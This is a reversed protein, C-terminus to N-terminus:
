SFKIKLAQLEMPSLEFATDLSISQEDSRTLSLISSKAEKIRIDEFLSGITIKAATTPCTLGRTPLSCDAAHTQLILGFDQRPIFELEATDGQLSRLNVLHVECPLQQSLPQFTPALQASSGFPNKVPLVHVPHILESSALQAQLSPYGAAQNPPSKADEKLFEFMMRFKTPTRKNDLVGQGLGRNDDQSLRRDQFVELWGSQLGAVGLSQASLLSLRKHHDQIYAMTPMPYVNAQLPLKSYTKRQHIQFGNLDTFLQDGNQVDSIVRMILEKNTEKSIDVINSVELSLSDLGPSNHLRVIHEVNPIIVHVESVLPGQIVRTFPKNYEIPQAQGDPLFLYAGSKEKTRAVGYRLFQLAVDVEQNSSKSTVHKLMGTAASFSATMESNQISFEKGDFVDILFANNILKAKRVSNLFTTSGLTNKHNSGVATKTISYSALGLPPVSVVFHLKYLESSMEENSVWFPDVQSVIVNGSPDHVEVHPTNVYLRIVCNRTHSLSNYFAVPVPKDSLVITTKAPLSDHTSRTEDVDFFPRTSSYVYHTRDKVLLFHASETIVTKMNQLASLLKHGYDVMVFDKATGTIADHHQFLGLSRRAMVLPQMLQKEPFNALQLKRAYSVALSYLIEAGRLNAELIRDLRKYFPRSTFYGTWYHDDRDAYSFFDGSLVPYSEPVENVATGAREHLAHFYDSLTGFQAQANLRPTNNIFDFLQQYNSYQQDWEVAKDFRFDDGLPILVVNNKYLMAKKRYQDLLMEARDAVNQPTIPVPPVNWPCSVKGGPLRKFDFQCCVKPDPGCTHPVDYSYFPMLHCFMDTTGSHDWTQRWRFELKKEEALYKKVEYHVRQILMNNFGSRKLLYPMTPSYGFPDIAWGSEPIVGIHNLLWQNGEILQDLMAYYHANAEDTMVWGATVLELRGEKILNKVRRQKDVSIEQWWMSFFSIEAYIFRMKPYAELKELMNDLIHRTQESYYRDFTKVWGPDCHSHPVVFVKLPQSSFQTDSYSISFGQKWAGGDINKFPLQDYVNQM